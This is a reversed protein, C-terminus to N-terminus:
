LDPRKLVVKGDIISIKNEVLNDLHYINVMVFDVGVMMNMKM